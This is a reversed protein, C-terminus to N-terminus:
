RCEDRGLWLRVDKDALLHQAYTLAPGPATAYHQFNIAITSLTCLKGGRYHEVLLVLAKGSGAVSQRLTYHAEPALRVVRDSDAATEAYSTRSQQLNYMQIDAQAARVVARSCTRGKSTDLRLKGTKARSVVCATDMIAARLGPYYREVPPNPTGTKAYFRYDDDPGSAAAKFDAVSGALGNRATGSVITDVMAAKAADVVQANMGLNCDTTAAVNKVFTATVACGTFIRSYTQALHVTSWTSNAGGLITMLYGDISEQGAEDYRLEPPSFVLPALAEANAFDGTPFWVSPFNGPSHCGAATAARRARGALTTPEVCFFNWLNERWESGLGEGTKPYRPALSYWRGDLAYSDWAPQGARVGPRRWAGQVRLEDEGGEALGLMMLTRAYKNCSLPIYIGFTIRAPCIDDDETIDHDVGLIRDIHNKPNDVILTLLNPWRSMVAVTFPVKATSGVPMRVFNSNEALWPQLWPYSQEGPKLDAAKRPYTPVAVVQGTRGDMLVAGARFSGQPAPSQKWLDAAVASLQSQAGAQVTRRLTTCLDQSRPQERCSDGTYRAQELAIVFNSPADNALARDRVRFDGVQQSIFAGSNVFAVLDTERNHLYTRHPSRHTVLFVRDQYRGGALAKGCGITETGGGRLALITLGACNDFGLNRRADLAVVGHSNPLPIRGGAPLSARNGTKLFVVDLPNGELGTQVVDYRIKWPWTVGAVVPGIIQRAGEEFREPNGGRDIKWVARSEIDDNLFSAAAFDFPRGDNMVRSIVGDVPGDAARCPSTCLNNLHFDEGIGAPVLLRNLVMQNVINLYGAPQVRIQPKHWPAAIVVSLAAFAIWAGWAKLVAAIGRM